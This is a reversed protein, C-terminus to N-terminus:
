MNLQNPANLPVAGTISRDITAARGAGLCMHEQGARERLDSKFAFTCM